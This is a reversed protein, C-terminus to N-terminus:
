PEEENLIDRFAIAYWRPNDEGDDTQDYRVFCVTMNLVEIHERGTKTLRIHQSLTVDCLFCNEGFARYNTFSEDTFTPNILTHDSITGIDLGTAWEYAYNYLDSDEILYAAITKFGNNTGSLDGTLFLAWTEAFAKVDIQETIEQPIPNRIAQSRTVSVSGTETDFPLEEGDPAIVRIDEGASGVMLCDFSYTVLGPADAFADDTFYKGYCSKFYTYEDFLTVPLGERSLTVDGVRVTYDTPVTATFNRFMLDTDETLSIKHGFVDEVTLELPQLSRFSYQRTDERNGAAGSSETGNVKVILAAPLEVDCAYVTPEEGKEPTVQNGFSDSVTLKIESLSQVEYSVRGDGVPTGEVTLKGVRVTLGDALELNASYIVPTVSTVKWDAYSFVIMETRENSGELTLTALRLDDCMLYYSRSMRDVSGTLPQYTLDGDSLIAIYESFLPSDPDYCERLGDPLTLFRDLDGTKAATKLQEITEEIVTEPQSHEYENLLEKVRLLILCSLILLLVTYACVSLILILRTKKKM